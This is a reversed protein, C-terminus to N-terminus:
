ENDRFGSPLSVIREELYLSNQLDDTQCDQYMPLKNMLIWIPRTMVGNENTNKLFEVRESKDKLIISNLWFNSKSNTPEDIFNIDNKQCFEKYSLATERKNDLIQNICEMQAVGIAANVNPMRLNCGVEDHYFEYPHPTKATTSLHKARAALAKDNTILMGGGGTTITKNGNFSLIGCKGFTGTHNDIYFSGISEAADEVVEINWKNCIEVIEDIRCPHGFIHVPVCAKVRRNTSKNICENKDNLICNENLFKDLSVPSMGITDLDVDIFIPTAGAHSIGNATGVFTLAQTIVEDGREVGSVQLAIQLASTGNVFAVAYEVGTFDCIMREFETVYKGVYSVFTSDICDALYKKEKGIFVPPHLTIFEQNKYLKKIFQIM